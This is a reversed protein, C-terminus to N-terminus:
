DVHDTHRATPRVDRNDRGSKLIGSNYCFSSWIVLTKCRKVICDKPRCFKWSHSILEVSSSAALKGSQYFQVCRRMMMMMMMMMMMIMMM